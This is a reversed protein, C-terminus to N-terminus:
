GNARRTRARGVVLLTLGSGILVVGIAVLAVSPSGTHPLTADSGITVVTTSTVVAPEQEVSTSTTSSAPQTTAPQTTAPETTAPPTTVPTTAPDTPTTVPETPTTVPETPTTVPQTTTTTTSPPTTLRCFQVNSVDPLNQQNSGVPPLGANSFHVSTQPPAYTTIVAHTGGKVMVASIAVSSTADGGTATGNTIVVIGGSGAPKEFVYTGGQYNFKALLVSGNPCTAQEVNSTTTQMLGVAILTAGIALLALGGVRASFRRSALAMASTM